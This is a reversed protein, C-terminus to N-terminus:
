GGVAEAANRIINGRPGDGAQTLVVVDDGVDFVSVAEFRGEQGPVPTVGWTAGGDKSAFVAGGSGLEPDDITGGALLLDGDEDLVLPNGRSASADNRHVEEFGDEGLVWEATWGSADPFLSGRVHVTDGIKKGWVLSCSEPLGDTTHKEWGDGKQRLLCPVTREDKGDTDRRTGLALVDEGTDVVGYLTADDPLGGAAHWEHGDQSTWIEARSGDDSSKTVSGFLYYTDDIKDLHKFDIEDKEPFGKAEDWDGGEERAFVQVPPAGDEPTKREVSSVQLGDPVAGVFVSKVDSSDAGPPVEDPVFGEESIDFAKVSTDSKVGDHFDGQRGMIRSQFRAIVGWGADSVNALAITASPTAEVASRIKTAGKECTMVGPDALFVADGGDTMGRSLPIDGYAHPHKNVWKGKASRTAVHFGDQFMFPVHLSKGDASLMPAGATYNEWVMPTDEEAHATQKGSDDTWVSKSGAEAPKVTEAKFATGDASVWCCPADYTGDPFVPKSSARIRGLLVFEKRHVIIETASGSSADGLPIKVPDDWTEGGDGSHVTCKIEPGDGAVALTGLLVVDDGSRAVGSTKWYEDEALPFTGAQTVTVGPGDGDKADDEDVFWIPVGDDRQRGAIVGAGTAEVRGQLADGLPHTDWSKLDASTMLDHTLGSGEARTVLLRADGKRPTLGWLGSTTPELPLELTKGAGATAIGGSREFRSSLVYAIALDRDPGPPIFTYQPVTSQSAMLTGPTTLPDLTVQPGSDSTGIGAKGALSRIADCGTTGLLGLAVLGGLATRRTPKMRAHAATPMM